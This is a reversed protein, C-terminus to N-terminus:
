AVSVWGPKICAFEPCSGGEEFEMPYIEFGVDHLLGTWTQQPFVGLLHRDTQVELRGPRRILFVLTMEYTDDTVDPDHLNEILTIDVDDRRHSSYSTANQQFAETTEEAYTIFLGGPKLHDFATQFAARLDHVSTMYAISDDILVADFPESLRVSRMDGPLYTVQPNLDMALRLMTESSDVGTIRYYRKLRHDVHGGGCGLHLLSNVEIQAYDRFIRRFAEAEPVYDEPPSIIPWTWALDAYLRQQDRLSLDQM